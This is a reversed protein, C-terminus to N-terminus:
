LRRNPERNSAWDWTVVNDAVKFNSVERRHDARFAQQFAARKQELVPCDCDPIPAYDAFYSLAGDLDRANYADHFAKVVSVADASQAATGASAGASTLILFVGVAHPALGPM